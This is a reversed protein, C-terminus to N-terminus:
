RGRFEFRMGNGELGLGDLDFNLKDARKRIDEPAAAKDQEDNWPGQWLIENDQDRAILTRQGNDSHIELSGDQDMVRITASNQLQHEADEDPVLGPQQEFQQLRQQMEQMMRRIDAQGEGFPFVEGDFRLEMRNGELMDRIREAMDDPMNQMRHRRMGDGRALQDPRTGLTVDLETGKGHQILGIKVKDGPQHGRIIDSIEAPSLAPKGDITIILDQANIGATDAPGDPMLSRVLVGEGNRVGLHTTLIEPIPGTVVGLYAVQAAAPDDQPEVAPTDRGAITPPAAEDSPAEIAFAPLALCALPLCCARILINTKM